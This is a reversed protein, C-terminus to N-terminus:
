PLLKKLQAYRGRVIGESDTLIYTPTGVIGYHRFNEGEFGKLDCLKDTWPLSHATAEFIDKDIDAAISIVRINNDRLLKYKEKLQELEYHCNGCGTEYFVILSSVPVLTATDEQVIEPAAQGNLPMTLYEVGLEALLNDKAYKSFMRIIAQTVERRVPIDHGCSDIMRRADAVLVTDKAYSQQMWLEFVPEWFGSSYLDIFDLQDVVFAYQEELMEEETITFSSGVGTLLNLIELLRAAYLPSDTIEKRFAKYETEISQRQMVNTADVYKQIINNQREMSRLLFNNEPSGEFLLTGEESMCIDEDGSVVINWVKASDKVSFCAVGRYNGSLRIVAKGDADLTGKAITDQKAGEFLSCSYERGAYSPLRVDITRCSAIVPLWVFCLITIYKLM